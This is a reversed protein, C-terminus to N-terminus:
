RGEEQGNARAIAARDAKARERLLDAIASDDCHDAAAELLEPGTWGGYNATAAEHYSPAAAILNADALRMRKVVCGRVNEGNAARIVDDEIAWPGPTHKMEAM